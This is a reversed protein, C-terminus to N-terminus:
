IQRISGPPIHGRIDRDIRKVEEEVDRMDLDLQRHRETDADPTSAKQEKLKELRELGAMRRSNLESLNM